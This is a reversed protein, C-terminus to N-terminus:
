SGKTQIIKPPLNKNNKPPLTKIHKKHIIKPPIMQKKGMSKNSSIITQVVKRNIDFTTTTFSVNNPHRPGTRYSKLTRKTPHNTSHIPQKNITIPPVNCQIQPIQQCQTGM